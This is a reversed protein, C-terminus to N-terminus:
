VAKSNTATKPPTNNIKGVQIIQIKHIIKITIIITNKTSSNSKNIKWDKVTNETVLKKGTMITM